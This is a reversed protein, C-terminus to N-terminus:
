SGHEVYAIAAILNQPASENVISIIFPRILCRRTPRIRRARRYHVATV